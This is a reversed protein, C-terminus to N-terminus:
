WQFSSVALAGAFYTGSVGSVRLTPRTCAGHGSLVLAWANSSPRLRHRLQKAPISKGNMSNLSRLQNGRQGLIKSCLTACHNNRRHTHFKRSRRGNSVCLKDHSLSPLM